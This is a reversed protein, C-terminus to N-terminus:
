NLHNQTIKECLDIDNVLSSKFIFVPFVKIILIHMILVIEPTKVFIQIPVALSSGQHSTCSGSLLGSIFTM